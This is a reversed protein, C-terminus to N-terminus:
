KKLSRTSGKLSRKSGKLSCKSGNLSRKSGRSLISSVASSAASVKSIISSVSYKSLYSSASRLSCQSDDAGTQPLPKFLYKALCRFCGFYKAIKQDDFQSTTSMSHSKTSNSKVSAGDSLDDLVVDVMFNKIATKRENNAADNAVANDNKNSEHKTKPAGKDAADVRDKKNKQRKKKKKSNPKAVEENTNEGEDNAANKNENKTKPAEESRLLM